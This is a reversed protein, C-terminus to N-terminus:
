RKKQQQEVSNNLKLFSMVVSYMQNIKIKSNHLYRQILSLKSYENKTAFAIKTRLIDVLRQLVM